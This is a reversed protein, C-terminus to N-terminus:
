DHRVGATNSDQSRTQIHVVVIDADERANLLNCPLVPDMDDRNFCAPRMHDARWRQCPIPDLTPDRNHVGLVKLGDGTSCGEYGNPTRILGVKSTGGHHRIVQTAGLHKGAVEDIMPMSVDGEHTVQLIRINSLAVLPVLVCQGPM